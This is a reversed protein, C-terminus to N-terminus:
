FTQHSMKELLSKVVAPMHKKATQRINKAEAEAQMEGEELIRKLETEKYQRLQENAEAKAKEEAQRKKEEWEREAEVKTDALEALAKQLRAEEQQELEVIQEREQLSPPTREANKESM